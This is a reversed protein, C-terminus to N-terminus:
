LRARRLAAGGALGPSAWGGRGRLDIVKGSSSRAAWRGSTTRSIASPRAPYHRSTPKIPRWRWSWLGAVPAGPVSPGAVRRPLLRV